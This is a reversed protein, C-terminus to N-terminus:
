GGSDQAGDPADAVASKMELVGFEILPMGERPAGPYVVFAPDKGKRERTGEGMCGQDKSNGIDTEGVENTKGTQGLPPSLQRKQIHQGYVPASADPMAVLVCVSLRDGERIRGGSTSRPTATGNVASRPQAPSSTSNSPELLRANSNAPSAEVSPRARHRSFPSLLRALRTPHEGPGEQPSQTRQQTSTPTSSPPSPARTLRLSVPMIRSWAFTENTATPHKESVTEEAPVLWTEWVMPRRGFRRRGTQRAGLGGPGRLDGLAGGDLDVFLGAALAREYRQRFRRRLVYSRLIITSSILLLVFLTALFTFLYLTSSTTQNGPQGVGSTTSSPSSSTSTPPITTTNSSM